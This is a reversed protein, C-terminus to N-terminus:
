LHTCNSKIYRKQLLILNYYMSSAILPSVEFTFQVLTSMDHKGRFGCYYDDDRNISWQSKGYGNVEWRKGIAIGEDNKKDREGKRSRPITERTCTTLEGGGGKEWAILQRLAM